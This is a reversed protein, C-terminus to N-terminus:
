IHSPGNNDEKLEKPHFHGAALYTEIFDAADDKTPFTKAEKTLYTWLGSSFDKDQDKFYMPIGFGDSIVWKM